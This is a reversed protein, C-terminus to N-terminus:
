SFFAILGGFTDQLWHALMAPRLSKRWYVLLGLLSGHVAIAIMAIGYFGHALGFAIGQLVIGVAISGSWGAFQRLLYGRFVLEEAFAATAALILYVVLEVVTKPTLNALAANNSAGLLYLLGATLPIAVVVFGVGLAVDTFFARPTNWRGAVLSGLTLGRRRLALWVLLVALWEEGLVTIYSSLRHSMGPLNANPMGHEYAGAISGIAILTLVLVTHWWPAVAETWPAVGTAATASKMIADEM